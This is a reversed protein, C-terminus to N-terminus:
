QMREIKWPNTGAGAAAFSYSLVYDDQYWLSVESIPKGDIMGRNMIEAYEAHTVETKYWRPNNNWRFELGVYVPPAKQGDEIM